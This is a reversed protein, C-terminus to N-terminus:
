QVEAQSSARAAGGPGQRRASLVTRQPQFRLNRSAPVHTGRIAILSVHRAPMYGTSGNASRGCYWEGDGQPKRGVIASRYVGWKRNGTGDFCFDILMQRDLLKRHGPRDYGMLAFPYLGRQDIGPVKADYCCFDYEDLYGVEPHFGHITAWFRGGKDGIVAGCYRKLFQVYGEDRHLFPHTALWQRVLEALAPEPQTPHEPGRCLVTPPGVAAFAAMLDDIQAM